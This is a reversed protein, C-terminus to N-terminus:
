CGLPSGPVGPVAVLNRQGGLPRESHEADTVFVGVLRRHQDHLVQGSRGSAVGGSRAYTTLAPGHSATMARSRVLFIAEAFLRGIHPIIEQVEAELRHLIQLVESAEGEREDRVFRSAITAMLVSAAAIGVIRV